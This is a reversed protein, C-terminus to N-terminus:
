EKLKGEWKYLLFWAQLQKLIQTAPVRNYQFDLSWIAKAQNNKNLKSLKKDKVESIFEDIVRWYMHTTTNNHLRQWGSCIHTRLKL